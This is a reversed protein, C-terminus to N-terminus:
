ISRYSHCPQVAGGSALLRTMLPLLLRKLHVQLLASPEFLLQYLYGIADVEESCVFRLPVYEAHEATPSLTLLPGFLEHLRPFYRENRKLLSVIDMNVAAFSLFPLQFVDNLDRKTLAHMTSASISNYAAIKDRQVVQSYERPDFSM